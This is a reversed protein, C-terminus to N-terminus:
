WSSGIQRFNRRRAMFTIRIALCLICHHYSNKGEVIRSNNSSQTATSVTFQAAGLHFATVPQVSDSSTSDQVAAVNMVSWEITWSLYSRVVASLSCQDADISPM